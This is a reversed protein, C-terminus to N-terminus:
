VSCVGKLDNGDGDGYDDYLVVENNEIQVRYSRQMPRKPWQGKKPETPIDVIRGDADFAWHHYPCRICPKELTWGDGHALTVHDITGNSLPAGRHCCADDMAVMEGEGKHWLVIKRGDVLFQQPGFATAFWAWPM